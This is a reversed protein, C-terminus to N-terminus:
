ITGCCGFLRRINISVFMGTYKDYSGSNIRVV